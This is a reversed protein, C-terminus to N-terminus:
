EENKFVYPQDTVTPIEDFNFVTPPSQIQWELTVGGWPNMGAPKGHKRARFLTYFMLFLGIILIFAGITSIVHGNQFEPLYDFYRRPMGQLGIVFLPFYLVNFGVFTIMWAINAMKEDYM